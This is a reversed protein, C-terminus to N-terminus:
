GQPLSQLPHSVLILVTLRFDPTGGAKTEVSSLVYPCKNWLYTLHHDQM